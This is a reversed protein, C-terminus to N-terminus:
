RSKVSQPLVDHDRTKKEWIMLGIFYIIKIAGALLADLPKEMVNVAKIVLYSTTLIEPIFGLISGLLYHRFKVSTLAALYNVAAFPMVPINRLIFMYKVGHKEMNELATRLKEEAIRKELMKYFSGAVRSTSGRKLFRGLLFAIVCALTAAALSYIFGWIMGFFVSAIGIFWSIPTFFVTFIITVAFYVPVVNSNYRIRNFFDTLAEKNYVPLLNYVYM